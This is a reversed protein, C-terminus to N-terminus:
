LFCIFPEHEISVYHKIDKVMSRWYYVRSVRKYTAQMGNHGSTPSSHHFWLIDALTEFNCVVQWRKGDAAEIYYPINEAFLFVYVMFSQM